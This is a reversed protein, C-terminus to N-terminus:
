GHLVCWPPDKPLCSGIEPYWSLTCSTRGPGRLWECRERVADVMEYPPAIDSLGDRVGVILSTSESSRSWGLV